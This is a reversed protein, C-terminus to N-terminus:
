CSPVESPTQPHLILRDTVHVDDLIWGADTAVLGFRGEERAVAINHMSDGGRPDGDREMIIESDILCYVAVARGHDLMGVSRVTMASPILLSATGYLSLGRYEDWQSDVVFQAFGSRRARAREHAAVDDPTRLSILHESWASHAAARVADTTAADVPVLEPLTGVVWRQSIVVASAVPEVATPPAPHILTTPPANLATTPTQFPVTVTAAAPRVSSVPELGSETAVSRRGSPTSLSFSTPEADTIVVRVQDPAEEAVPRVGLAIVLLAMMSPVLVSPRLMATM